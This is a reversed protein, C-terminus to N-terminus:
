SQLDPDLVRDTSLTVSVSIQLLLFFILAQAESEDIAIYLFCM